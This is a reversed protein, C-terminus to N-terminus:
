LIYRYLLYALKRPVTPFSTLSTHTDCVKDQLAEFRVPLVIQKNSYEKLYIEFCSELKEKSPSFVFDRFCHLLKSNDFRRNYGRDYLVQYKSAPLKTHLSVNVFKVDFRSGFIEEHKKIYVSLVSEWTMNESTCVNFIEGKFKTTSTLEAIIRAVDEGYTMTTYMPSIDESFVIPKGSMIRPIWAEAEYAGLQLRKESFTIYPRLIIWNKKASNFLINEERAKALSYENTALFKKDKSIDLLRPSEETILKDGTNAYVRSSSLFVYTGANDLFLEVKDKNFEDLSYVMFDIIFDYGNKITEKIFNLDHADGRLYKIKGVNNRNFRSTITVDHGRRSLISGLHSGIAGTGGLLLYRM